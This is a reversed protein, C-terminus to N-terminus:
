RCCRELRGRRVVCGCQRDVVTGPVEVPLTKSALVIMRGLNAGQAGVQSVCGCVVDDVEAGKIGTRKVLEDVVIAGLDAPHIESLAGNKKGGATRCCDVIYATDQLQSNPPNHKRAEGM